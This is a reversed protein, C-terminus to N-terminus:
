FQILVAGLWLEALVEIDGFRFFMKTEIESTRKPADEESRPKEQTVQRVKQIEDRQPYTNLRRQQPGRKGLLILWKHSM